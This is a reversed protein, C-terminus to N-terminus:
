PQVLITVVYPPNQILLKTPPPLKLLDVSELISENFKQSGSVELLRRDVVRGFKDIQLRVRAKLNNISDHFNKQRFFMLDQKIKKWILQNYRKQAIKFQLKELSSKKKPLKKQKDIQIKSEFLYKEVKRKANIKEDSDSKFIYGRSKSAKEPKSRNVVLPSQAYGEMRFLINHLMEEKNLGCLSCFEHIARWRQNEGIMTLSLRGNKWDSKLLFLSTNKFRSHAKMICKLNECSSTSFSLKLKQLVKEFESQYRLDYNLVLKEKFKQLLFQESLEPILKTNIGLVLALPKYDKSWTLNAEFFIIFLIIGLFKILKLNVRYFFYNFM